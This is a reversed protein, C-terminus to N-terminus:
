PERLGIKSRAATRAFGCNSPDDFDLLAFGSRRPSPSATFPLV